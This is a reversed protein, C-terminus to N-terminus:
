IHSEKKMVLHLHQASPQIFTLCRSTLGPNSISIQSNATLIPSKFFLSIKNKLVSKPEYCFSLLFYLSDGDRISVCVTKGVTLM